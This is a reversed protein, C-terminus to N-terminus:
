HADEFPKREANPLWYVAQWAVLGALLAGIGESPALGDDVVPALFSGAAIAAAVYAKAAAKLHNKM